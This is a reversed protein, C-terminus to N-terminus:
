AQDALQQRASELEMVLLRFRRSQLGSVWGFAIGMMWYPWGFSYSAALAIVPPIALALVLTAMRYRRDPESLAVYSAALVVLFITGEAHHALNLLLPPTFTWAVLAPTPLSPWRRRALFAMSVVAATVAVELRIGATDVTALSIAGIIVAIVSA